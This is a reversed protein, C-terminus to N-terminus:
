VKSGPQEGEARNASPTLCKKPPPAPPADRTGHVVQSEALRLEYDLAKEFDKPEPGVGNFM